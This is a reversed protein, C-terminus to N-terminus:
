CQFWCAVEQRLRFDGQDSELEFGIRTPWLDSALDCKFCLLILISLLIMSLMMMLFTVLINCSFHLILFPAKLFELMLQIDKELSEM